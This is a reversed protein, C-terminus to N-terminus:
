RCPGAGRRCLYSGLDDPQQGDLGDPPVGAAGTGLHRPRVLRRLQATSLGDLARHDLPPLATDGRYADVYWSRGLANAADMPAGQQALWTVLGPHLAPARLTYPLTFLLPGALGTGPDVRTLEERRVPGLRHSVVQLQPAPWADLSPKVWGQRRVHWALAASWDAGAEGQGGLAPLRAPECGQQLLFNLVEPGERRAARQLLTTGDPAPQCLPLKATAAVQQLWEIRRAAPFLVGRESHMLADFHDRGPCLPPLGAAVLRQLAPLERRRLPEDLQRCYSGGAQPNQQYALTMLLLYHEPKDPRVSCERFIPGIDRQPVGQAIVAQLAAASGNCAAQRLPDKDGDLRGALYDERERAARESNLRRLRADCTELNMAALRSQWAAHDYVWPQQPGALRLGSESGWLRSRRTADSQLQLQLTLQAPMAQWAQDSVLQDGCLAPGGDTSRVGRYWLVFEVVYDGANLRGRPPDYVHSALQQLQAQVPQGGHLVRLERLQPDFVQWHQPQTVVLQPAMMLRLVDVSHGTIPLDAKVRFTARGRVGQPGAPDAHPALTLDVWSVQSGARQQQWDDLWPALFTSYALPLSVMLALGLGVLGVAHWTLASPHHRPVLLALPPVALLVVALVFGLFGWPGPGSAHRSGAIVLVAAALAVVGVLASALLALGRAISLLWPTRHAAGAGAPPAPARAAQAQGDQASM